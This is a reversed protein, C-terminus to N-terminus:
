SDVHLTSIAYPGVALSVAISLLDNSLYPPPALSFSDMKEPFTGGLNSLDLQDVRFM